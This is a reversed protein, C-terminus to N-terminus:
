GPYQTEKQQEEIPLLRTATQNTYAANGFTPQQNNRSMLHGHTLRTLAIHIRSPKFKYQRCSNHASEWDEICPKIYHLKSTSNEWERQQESNGASKIALYYDIHSLRTTTIGSM